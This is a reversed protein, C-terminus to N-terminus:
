GPKRRKSGNNKGVFILTKALIKAIKNVEEDTLTNVRRAGDMQAEKLVNVVNSRGVGYLYTLAIDLRKNTPLDVGAIRAM